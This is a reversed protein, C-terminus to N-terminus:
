IPTCSSLPFGPLFPLSTMLLELGLSLLSFHFICLFTTVEWSHVLGLPFEIINGLADEVILPMNKTPDLTRAVTQTSLLVRFDVVAACVQHLMEKVEILVGFGSKMQSLVARHNEDQKQMREAMNEEHQKMREALAFLQTNQDQSLRLMAEQVGHNQAVLRKIEDVRALM